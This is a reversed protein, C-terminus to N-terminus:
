QRLGSWRTRRNHFAAARVAQSSFDRLKSGSLWAVTAVVRHAIRRWLVRRLQHTKIKTALFFYQSKRTPRVIEKSVRCFVTCCHLVVQCLLGILTSNWVNENVLLVHTAAIVQKSCVRASLKLLQQSSLFISTFVKSIKRKNMWSPPTVSKGHNPPRAQSLTLYQLSHHSFAVFPTLPIQSTLVNGGFGDFDKSCQQVTHKSFTIGFYDHTTSSSLAVAVKRWPSCYLTVSPKNVWPIAM